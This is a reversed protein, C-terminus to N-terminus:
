IISEIVKSPLSQIWNHRQIKRTSWMPLSHLSLKYILCLTQMYYSYLTLAPIRGRQPCLERFLPQVVHKWTLTAKPGWRTLALVDKQGIIDVRNEEPDSKAPPTPCQEEMALCAVTKHMCGTNPKPQMLSTCSHRWGCSCLRWQSSLFHRVTCITSYAAPM